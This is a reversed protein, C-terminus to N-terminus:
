RGQPQPPRSSPRSDARLHRVTHALAERGRRLRRRCPQRAETRSRTRCRRNQNTAVSLKRSQRTRLCPRRSQGEARRCARSCARSRPRTSVRACAGAGMNTFRECRRARVAVSMGMRERVRGFLRAVCPGDVSGVVHAAYAVQTAAHRFSVHDRAFSPAIGSDM